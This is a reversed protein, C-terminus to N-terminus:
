GQPTCRAVPSGVLRFESSTDVEVYVQQQFLVIIDSGGFQFYGFEEGKAMHRGESATLIVSSVHGMGVPVITVLGIDCFGSQSTDITVVGRTQSFEYGSQASDRLATFLEPDLEAAARKRTATLSDTLRHALGPDSELIDELQHIVADVDNTQNM